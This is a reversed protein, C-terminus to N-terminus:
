NVRFNNSYYTFDAQFPQNGCDVCVPIKLRNLGNEAEDLALRFIKKAGAAMCNSPLDQDDCASYSYSIWNGKKDRKEVLYPYCSSFCIPKDLSNQITIELADGIKYEVRDTVARVPKAFWLFLSIMVGLALLTLLIKIINNKNM